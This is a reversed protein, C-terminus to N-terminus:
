YSEDDTWMIKTSNQVYDRASFPTRGQDPGVIYPDDGFSCYESFLQSGSKGVKRNERIWDDLLKKAAATAAELTEFDGLKYRSEEDMYHANDDVFVTYTM